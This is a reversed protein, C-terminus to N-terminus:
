KAGFAFSFAVPGPTTGDASTGALWGAASETGTSLTSGDIVTAGTQSGAGPNFTLSAKDAVISQYAPADPDPYLGTAGGGTVAIAQMRVLWSPDPSQWAVSGSMTWDNLPPGGDTATLTTTSVVPAQWRMGSAGNITWTRLVAVEYPFDDPSDDVTWERGQSAYSDVAAVKWVSTVDGLATSGSGLVDWGTPPTYTPAASGTLYSGVFVGLLMAGASPTAAGWAYWDTLPSFAADNGYEYDRITNASTPLVPVPGPSQSVIRRHYGVRAIPSESWRRGGPAMRQGARAVRAINPDVPRLSVM